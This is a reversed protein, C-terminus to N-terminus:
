VGKDNLMNGAFRKISNVESWCIPHLRKKVEIAVDVMDHEEDMELITRYVGNGSMDGYDIVYLTM